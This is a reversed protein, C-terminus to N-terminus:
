KILKEMIDDNVGIKFGNYDNTLSQHLTSQVFLCVKQFAVAPLGAFVRLLENSASDMILHNDKLSMSSTNEEM